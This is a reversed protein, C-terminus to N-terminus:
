RGEQGNLWEDFGSDIEVDPATDIERARDEFRKREAEFAAGPDPESLVVRLPTDNVLGFADAGMARLYREISGLRVFTLPNFAEVPTRPKGDPGLRVSDLWARLQGMRAALALMDSRTEDLDAMKQEIHAKRGEIAARNRNKWGSSGSDYARQLDQLVQRLEEPGTSDLYRNRDARNLTAELDRLARAADDLAVGLEVIRPGATTLLDMYAKQAELTYYFSATTASPSTLLEWLEGLVARGLGQGQTFRDTVGFQDVVNGLGVNGLEGTGDLLNALQQDSAALVPAPPEPQGPGILATLGTATGGVMNLGLFGESPTICNGTLLGPTGRALGNLSALTVQGMSGRLRAADGGTEIIKLILDVDGKSFRLAIGELERAGIGGMTEAATDLYRALPIRRQALAAQIRRLGLVTSPAVQAGEVGGLVRRGQIIAAHLVDDVARPLPHWGKARAVGALVEVEAAIARAEDITGSALRQIAPAPDVGYQRALNVTKDGIMRTARELPTPARAVSTPPGVRRLEALANGFETKLFEDGSKVADALLRETNMVDNAYHAQAAALAAADEAANAATVAAQPVAAGPRGRRLMDMGERLRELVEASAGSARAKDYSRELRRLQTAWNQTAEALALESAIGSQAAARYTSGAESVAAVPAYREALPTNELARRADAARTGANASGTTAATTVRAEAAVTRRAQMWRIGRFGLKGVGVGLNALAFLMDAREYAARAELWETLMGQLATSSSTVNVYSSQWRDTAALYSNLSRAVDAQLDALDRMMREQVSQERVMATNWRLQTQADRPDPPLSGAAFGSAAAGQRLLEIFDDGQAVRAPQCVLPPQVPATALSPDPGPRPAPANDVEGVTRIQDTLDRSPRPTKQRGHGPDNGEGSQAGQEAKLRQDEGPKAREDSSETRQSEPESALPQEPPIESPPDSAAWAPSEAMAALVLCLAAGARWFHRGSQAATM